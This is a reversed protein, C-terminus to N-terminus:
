SISCAGEEFSRISMAKSSPAYEHEHDQLSKTVFRRYRSLVIHLIQFNLINLTDEIDRIFRFIACVVCSADIIGDSFAIAGQVSDDYSLCETQIVELSMRKSIDWIPVAMPTTIASQYGYAYLFREAEVDLDPIYRIFPNRATM